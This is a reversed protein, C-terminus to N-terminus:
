FIETMVGHIALDPWRSDPKNEPTPWFSGSNAVKRRNLPNQVNFSITKAEWGVVGAM